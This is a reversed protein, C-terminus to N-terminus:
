LAWMPGVWSGARGQPGSVASSRAVEKTGRGQGGPHQLHKLGLEGSIGRPRIAIDWYPPQRARSCVLAGMDQGTQSLPEPWCTNKEVQSILELDLKTM